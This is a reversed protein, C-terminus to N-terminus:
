IIKIKERWANDDYGKQQGARILEVLAPNEKLQRAIDVPVSDRGLAALDYLKTILRPYVAINLASIIENLLIEDPPKNNGNEIDSIYAPTKKVKKALERLSLKCAKRVIKLYEGFNQEDPMYSDLDVPEGKDVPM